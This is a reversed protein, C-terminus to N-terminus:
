KGQDWKYFLAQGDVKTKTEYKKIIRTSINGKTIIMIGGPQSRTQFKINARSTTCSFQKMHNRMKKKIALEVDRRAWNLHTETLCMIDINEQKMFTMLSELKEYNKGLGNINKYFIRIEHHTKEPSIRHAQNTIEISQRRQLQNNRKQGVEVPRDGESSNSKSM